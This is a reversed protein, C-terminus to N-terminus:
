PYDRSKVAAISVTNSGDTTSVSIWFYKNGPTTGSATAVLDSAYFQGTITTTYTVGDVIDTIPSLNSTYVGTPSVAGCGLPPWTTDVCALEGALNGRALYSIRAINSAVGVSRSATIFPTLVVPLLIGLMVIIMVMEILSFGGAGSIRKFNNM